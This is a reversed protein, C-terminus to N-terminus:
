HVLELAPRHPWTADLAGAVTAIAQALEHCMVRQPEGALQGDGGIAYVWRSVGDDKWYVGRELNPALAFPLRTDGEPSNQSPVRDGSMLVLRPTRQSSRRRPM